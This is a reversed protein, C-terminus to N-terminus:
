KEVANDALFQVAKNWLLNEKMDAKSIQKYLDAESPINNQKMIKTVGEQYEKDTITMNEAKIVSKLVLEAQGRKQAVELARTDLDKQTMGQAQLIKDVTTNYNAAMQKYYNEYDTTYYTILTKPVSKIKSNKIIAELVQNQKDNNMTDENAKELKARVSKKYEDVTKYTTKSKVYAENLKPVVKEKISNVTVNFVVAQGALDKAQYDSPFTLNLKLKDGVKAGILKEEFGPIFQNSGITLDTGKATGGDFAKGDKLGEYDINVTDGKKAARDKVEKTTANGELETNIEKKVDKDTVKLKKVTVEVGKYKGLTIYDSLNYNGRKVTATSANSSEKTDQTDSTAAGTVDSSAKEEKTNGGNSKKSCGGILAFICLSLVLLIFRKKM